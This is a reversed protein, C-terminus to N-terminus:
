PAAHVALWLQMSITPARLGHKQFAEWSLREAPRLLDSRHSQVANAIVHRVMDVPGTHSVVAYLGPQLTVTDPGARDAEAGLFYPMRPGQDSLLVGYLTADDDVDLTDALDIVDQDRQMSIAGSRGTLAMPAHRWRLRVPPLHRLHALVALDPVEVAALPRSGTRLYARPPQGFQRSFARTFTAQSAYGCRRAVELIDAGPAELMRAAETLVRARWYAMLPVGCVSRFLRHLESVSGGAARAVQVASLPEFLRSEIFVVARHVRHVAADVTM